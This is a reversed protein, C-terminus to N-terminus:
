AVTQAVAVLLLLGYPFAVTPRSASRLYELLLGVSGARQAAWDRHLQFAQTGSAVADGDLLQELQLLRVGLRAQCTKFIGEQLWLVLCLLVLWPAMVELVLGASFLTVALLKIALASGEYREYLPQLIAWEQAAAQTNDLLPM